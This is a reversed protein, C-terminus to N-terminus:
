QLYMWAPARFRVLRRYLWLYSLFYVLMLTLLMTTDAQFIVALTGFAAVPLWFYWSVKSNARNKLERTRPRELGTVLRRYVLTHLHLADAQKVPHNRLFKRRYMSFLTETLPFIGVLAPAMPSIETNRIVLLLGLEVVWFGLLYAGGDGLFIGGRPWNHLLFGAICAISLGCLQVLFVDGAQWAMFLFSTIMLVASGAALGHFGDVINLGNTFGAVVLITLLFVAGPLELLRDVIWVDTHQVGTGLWHLGAVASLIAL